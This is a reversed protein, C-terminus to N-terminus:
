SPHAGHHSRVQLVREILEPADQLLMEGKPLKYLANIALM